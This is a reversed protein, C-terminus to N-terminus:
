AQSTKEEHLADAIAQTILDGGLERRQNGEPLEVQHVTQRHLPWQVGAKAPIHHNVEIFFRLALQKGPYRVQLAGAVDQEEAVGLAQEFDRFSISGNALRDVPAGSM